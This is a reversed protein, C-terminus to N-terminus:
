RKTDSPAECTVKCPVVRCDERVIKGPPCVVSPEDDAAAAEPVVRTGKQHSNADMDQLVAQRVTTACGTSLILLLGWVRADVGRFNEITASTFM